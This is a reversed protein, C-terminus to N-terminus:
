EQESPNIEQDTSKATMPSIITVRSGTESDSSIELRGGQHRLREQISFIGFGGKKVDKEKRTAEFGIGNDHILICVFDGDRSISVRVRTARAHKVVNHLLERTAQFLLIRLSEDIPKYELDDIFEVLIDHQKQTQETLWDLAAELGLDYLIPPSLEFTLTQTDSISQDILSHIDDIHRSANEDVVSEKVVRLKMSANALAHGIRDHLDTAIRRREREETLSLESSLSRLQAQYQLADEERKESIERLEKENLIVNEYLKSNEFSIAAQSALLSLVSIREPTFVSPTINNELYLLAMMRGQRIVPLCLVSKPQFKLVYPDRTFDGENSADELVLHTQARKVYNLVPHFLEQRNDAPLSKHVIPDQLDVTHEAELYTRDSTITLFMVKRAGANELVIKMLSKLLDELVIETSITQLANVIANLDLHRGAPLLKPGTEATLLTSFNKELLAVKTKAGWYHYSQRAKNMFTKAIDDFGKALYFKAAAENAMAHNQTFGNANAARIARHYLTIARRDQGIVRAHEAEALLYKDEYNEPCQVSLQKLRNCLIIMQRRYINQKLLSISPYLAALVLCHYVYYEPIIITGIHYQRLAGCKRAEKLAGEYDEMIYLLRLKILHHRCLILKIDDSQINKVHRTESFYEDNLSHIHFTEGKLSKIFQRVSILYNLAGIDHSKEVFEYYRECEESIDDLPKGGALMSFILSQIHYVTYNLDGTDRASTLGERNLAIVQNIHHTWITIGNAYYLLVKATMQSGGFKNKAKMALEGFQHGAAYDKFLGCLAAGYVVYAFPSVSSNGHKLTIKFIDFALYSALYPQCFYASLSLNMMMKLTLLLRANSIEPLEILADIDRGRLKIKLTMLSQLVDLKGARKPLRVNLLRLGAIGIELADEHKALSALMIMKQNYLGARDEDTEARELLVRFLKEANEFNQLFYECEMLHKKIDFILQYNESWIDGSLLDEAATLYAHSQRYAAADKARKGAILNLSALQHGDTTKMTQSKSHNLHHVISFIRSPLNKSDTYKLMLKGITLHYKNKVAEPVQDYVAQRVKEHLFEFAIDDPPTISRSHNDRDPVAIFSADMHRWADGTPTILGLSVAERLDTMISAAPRAAARSLLSLSFSDGICAALQLAQLSHEALRSVKATMFDVVNDTISLANIQEIDWQWRGNEYDYSFLGSRNVTEIFQRIFFPNGRTKDLVIQALLRVQHTDTQFADSLLHCIDSESIPKLTVTQVPVGKQKIAAISDFLPHTQSIENNRYAGIFYFNRTESGIFLSEMLKLGATDAWQMNDIFLTLPHEKAAIVQLFKEFVLHFRNQADKPSLTPVMPQKGVIFELEPLVDVIIRANSGLAQTLKSRWADIRDVPETLIQRVIEAFAPIIGSYPIEQKLQEYQGSIFYGGNKVVYKQVEEIVRSKGIGSYGAILSIGTNDEKVRDYEDILMAVEIERGYLNDPFRFHEPVDHQAIQFSSPPDDAKYHRRCRLLDSKIGFTSQYRNEPSKELLKLIIDSLPAGTQTRNTEPMEPTKAMHAHILEMASGSFPPTGTLLEYFIIGLSYFDTRYDIECNMRGTQEPSIYPLHDEAIAMEEKKMGPLAAPSLVAVMGFAFDNIWIHNKEPDVAIGASTLGNHSLGSKHLDKVATLIQVAVTIFEKVNLPGNKGIFDKLTLAPMEEIIFAIGVASAESIKEIAYVRAIHQSFVKKLPLFYQYMDELFDRSQKPAPLFHIKVKSGSPVHRASYIKVGNKPPGELIIDYGSLTFM